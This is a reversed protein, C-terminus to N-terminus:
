ADELEEQHAVVPKSHDRVVVAAKWDGLFQLWREDDIIIPFNRRIELLEFFSPKKPTKKPVWRGKPLNNDKLNNCSACSAVVNEWTHKGGKVRPVVHDYTLTRITLPEECYMCKGHDRYYLTEKKFKVERHSFNNNNVIVSDWYMDNRSPTLIKRDYKLISYATGNIVRVAAEEVPITYLPFVSLPIYDSNLVLTRLGIQSM